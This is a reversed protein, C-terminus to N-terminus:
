MGNACDIVESIIKDQCQAQQILRKARGNEEIKYRIHAEIDEKRASIEIKPVDRFSERIDEPYQRSTIFINAGSKEMRHFFPLLERRQNSQHCEDLADFVLFVRSFSKFTAVLATYLEEFKPKRRSGELKDHLTEIEVPLAEIQTALQKVLSALIHIPKQHERERYHFYIYAVGYDNATAEDLLYDIM